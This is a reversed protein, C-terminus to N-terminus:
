WSLSRKKSEMKRDRKKERDYDEFMRKRTLTVATHMYAPNHLDFSVLSSMEGVNKKSTRSLLTPRPTPNWLNFSFSGNLKWQPAKRARFNSFTIGGEKKLLLCAVTTVHKCRTKIYLLWSFSFEHINELSYHLSKM